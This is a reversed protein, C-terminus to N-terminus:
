WSPMPPKLGDKIWLFQGTVGDNAPQLMELVLDATKEPPDGGSLEVKEVWKLMGRGAGTRSSADAKIADFMETQVEGPHLVNATVGTGALEQALQRTFHNLAVKSLQYASSVNYVPSLAAASSVNFIRGWGQRVMGAMFAHCVLYPGFTNIRMTELWSEPSSDAIPLCEGFLGAGNFLIQPSGFRAEVAARLAEVAAPDAVDCPFAAAQGGAATIASVVEDLRDKRRGVLAVRLGHAAFARAVVAGVGSGAGTVLATLPPLQAPGPPTPNM